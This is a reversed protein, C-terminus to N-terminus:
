AAIPEPAEPESTELKEELVQTAAVTERLDELEDTLDELRAQLTNVEEAPVMGCYSKAANEVVQKLLFLHGEQTIITQFDIYDNPEGRGTVACTYPEYPPSEGEIVRPM